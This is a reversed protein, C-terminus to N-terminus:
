GRRCRKHEVVNMEGALEGAGPDVERPRPRRANRQQDNDSLQGVALQGVSDVILDREARKVKFCGAQYHSAATRHLQVGECAAVREEEALERDGVLVRVQRRGDALGDVHAAVLKPRRRAGEARGGGDPPDDVGIQEHLDQVKMRHVEKGVELRADFGQEQVLPGASEREM